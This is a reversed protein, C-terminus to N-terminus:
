CLQRCRLLRPLMLNHAILVFEDSFEEAACFGLVAIANRPM